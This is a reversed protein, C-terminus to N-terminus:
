LSEILIKLMPQNIHTILLKDNSGITIANTLTIVAEQRIAVSVHTATHDLVRQWVEHTMVAEIHRQQSATLNSLVWLIQSKNISNGPKSLLENATTLFGCQFIEDIVIENASTSLSGIVKVADEAMDANLAIMPLRVIIPTAVEVLDSM